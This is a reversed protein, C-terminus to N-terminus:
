LALGPNPQLREDEREPTVGFRTLVESGLALTTCGYRRGIAECLPLDYAGWASLVVDFSRERARLEVADLCHALSAEFGQDPRLLHRSDAAALCRLGYPAIPQGPTLAFARGSRHQAEVQAAQPTILLVERGALLQYFAADAPHRVLAPLRGHTQFLGQLVAFLASGPQQPDVILQASALEALSPEAWAALSAMPSATHEYFGERLVLQCLNELPDGPDWWREARCRQLFARDHHHRRITGLAQELAERDLLWSRLAALQIASPRVVASGPELRAAPYPMPLLQAGLAGPGGCRNWTGQAWGLASCATGNLSGGAGWLHSLSELLSALPHQLRFGLGSADAQQLPAFFAEIGRQLAVPDAQEATTLAALNLDLRGTGHPLARAGPIWVLGLEILDPAAQDKDLELDELWQRVLESLQEAKLVEGARSTSPQRGLELSLRARELAEAIAAQRRPDSVLATLQRCSNVLAGAEAPGTSFGPQVALEELLDVLTQEVRAPLWEPMPDVLQALRLLLAVAQLRSQREPQELLALAGRRVLGEEVVPLWDPLPRKLGRIASLLDCALAHLRAAEATSCPAVWQGHTLVQDLRALVQVLGDSLASAQAAAAEPHRTGLQQHHELAATWLASAEDWAGKELARCALLPELSTLAALLGARCQELEPRDLGPAQDLGGTRSSLAQLLHNWLMVRAQEELPIQLLSPLSLWLGLEGAADGTPRRLVEVGNMAREQM